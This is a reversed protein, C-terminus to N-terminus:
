VMSAAAALLPLLLSMSFFSLRSGGSGPQRPTVPVAGPYPVSQRPRIRTTPSPGPAAGPSGGHAEKEVDKYCDFQHWGLVSRERDFVVKLGTMFNEAHMEDTIFYDAILLPVISSNASSFVTATHILIRTRGIIDIAIDNQLVALCYGVAVMQGDSTEGAILVFPRTVPFVAGGRTTLSVEPVFLETQGRALQYCYQFPISASLNARKERVQSDFSTALETYAPDNLYTFSTGSDVVAAFEAALEKGEVTMATVSINYTPHTNRITFPTEAQGPRGADGFNIRGLGDPSFCMSFSDSAVLGAAHLVSPVSVKDMGLGLLGDVAAGDLFAGTQVQGCGLVVPAKVATSLGGTQRSLHLVDEVLVGSSSTNASVYRVSYPCSSSSNGAAACANPRECLAHECTVAKSTSSKGPSYPRLEPGGRLESANAIPACQKCDCPVWFLDSGTDLAVLFTANPTGVAVEAYHLSGDLRFTLNGSAFTLLGGKGGDGEALGRRALHARDHRSLAAYYEPTGEAEAWWAAGPHGRAEAWRRVVPSSRHHLDFGIGSSAEGAAALAAAVAMAVAVLSLCTSRAM